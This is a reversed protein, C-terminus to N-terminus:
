RAADGWTFTNINDIKGSGWYWEDYVCRVWGVSYTTTNDRVTGDSLVNMIGQSSWYISTKGASVVNFLSPIFGKASLTTIFELEARTPVRWRGAPYGYEQYSACRKEADDLSFANGCVGYSSAIRFAPAIVDRM